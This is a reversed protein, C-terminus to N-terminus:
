QKKRYHSQMKELSRQVYEQFEPTNEVKSGIAILNWGNSDSNTVTEKKKLKTLSHILSEIRVSTDALVNLTRETYTVNEKRSTVKKILEEQVEELEVIQHELVKVYDM